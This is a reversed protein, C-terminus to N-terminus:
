YNPFTSIATACAVLARYGVKVQLFATDHMYLRVEKLEVRFAEVVAKHFEVVRPGGFAGHLSEVTAAYM